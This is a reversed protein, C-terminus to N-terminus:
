DQRRPTKKATKLNAVFNSVMQSIVSLNNFLDVFSNVPRTISSSVNKADDLISNTKIISNRLERLVEIVWIGVAVLVGTIAILCANFIIQSYNM